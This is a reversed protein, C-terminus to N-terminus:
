FAIKNVFHQLLRPQFHLLHIHSYYPFRWETSNSEIHPGPAPSYAQDTEQTSSTFAESGPKLKM